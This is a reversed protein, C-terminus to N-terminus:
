FAAATSRVIEIRAANPPHSGLFQDGPDPIRMFFAAGRIPDYGALMTIVTGLQDAELEYQKSFARAGVTAGLEGASRITTADGGSLEAVRAFVQAAVAADEEVRALHGLIHHASEHSMVFALEDENEVSAILALNFAIVPRGHRDLTQFANPEEDPRDDVVILYDCNLGKTLRRCESEAVPEITGAVKVFQRAAQAARLAEPGDGNAPALASPEVACAALLLMLAIPLLRHMLFRVSGASSLSTLM